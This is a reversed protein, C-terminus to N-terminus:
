LIVLSVPSAASQTVLATNTQNLGIQLTEDPEEQQSTELQLISPPCHSLIRKEPVDRNLRSKFIITM